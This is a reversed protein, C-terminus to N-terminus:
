GDEVLGADNFVKLVASSAQNMIREIQKSADERKDKAAQARESRAKARAEGSESILNDDDVASDVPM